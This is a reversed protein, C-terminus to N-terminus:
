HLKVDMQPTRGRAVRRRPLLIVGTRVLSGIGTYGRTAKYSVRSTYPDHRAPLRAWGHIVRTVVASM